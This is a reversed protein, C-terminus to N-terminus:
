SIKRYKKDHTVTKFQNDDIRIIESHNNINFESQLYEDLGPVKTQLVTQLQEKLYFMQTPQKRFQERFQKVQPVIGLIAAVFYVSGRLEWLSRLYIREGISFDPYRLYKNLMRRLYHNWKRTKALNQTSGERYFILPQNIIKVMSNRLRGQLSSRLFLEADEMYFYESNYRNQIFWQKRGTITSQTLRHKYRLIGTPLVNHNGRDNRITKLNNQDDIVCIASATLQIRTNTFISHQIILRDPVMIDDADLMAILDNRSEDTIQNRRVAQHLNNGDSIVRVRPDMVSRAIELSRDTSGDDVLILEWDQYTQAFVSRITDPLFKECNYFPIGISVPM